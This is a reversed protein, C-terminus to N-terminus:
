AHEWLKHRGAYSTLKPGSTCRASSLAQKPARVSASKCRSCCLSKDTPSRSDLRCSWFFSFLGFILTSNLPSSGTPLPHFLRHSM